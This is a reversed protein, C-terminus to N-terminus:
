RSIKTVEIETYGQRHGKVRRYRKRRHAKQIRIKDGRGTGLVKAAVSAGSVFPTGVAIDEGDAILLVKDFTVSTGEKEGLLPVQLKMGQEVLEQTGAIDVIAFM